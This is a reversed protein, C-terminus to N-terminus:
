KLAEWKVKQGCTVCKGERKAIADDLVKRFLGAIDIKYYTALEMKEKEARVSYVKSQQKKSM